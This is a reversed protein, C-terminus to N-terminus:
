AREDLRRYIKKLLSTQKILEKRIEDLALALDAEGKVTEITPPRLPPAWSKVPPLAEAKGITLELTDIMRGKNDKKEKKQKREKQRHEENIAWLSNVEMSTDIMNKRKGKTTIGKM